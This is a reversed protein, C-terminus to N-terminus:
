TRSHGKREREILWWLSRHKIIINIYFVESLTQELVLGMLIVEKLSKNRQKKKTEKDTKKRQKNKEKNETELQRNTEDQGKKISM